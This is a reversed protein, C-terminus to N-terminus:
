ARLGLVVVPQSRNVKNLEHIQCLTRALTADEFVNRMARYRVLAALCNAHAQALLDLSTDFAAQAAAVDGRALAPVAPSLGKDKSKIRM